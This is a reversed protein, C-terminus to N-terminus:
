CFTIIILFFASCSCLLNLGAFKANREAFFRCLIASEFQINSNAKSVTYKSNQDRKRVSYPSFRSSVFENVKRKEKLSPSLSDLFHHHDHRLKEFNSRSIEAPLCGPFKAAAVDLASDPKKNVHCLNLVKQKLEIIKSADNIRSLPLPLKDM